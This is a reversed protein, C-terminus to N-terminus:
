SLPFLVSYNNKDICKCNECHYYKLAWDINKLCQCSIHYEVTWLIFLPWIMLMLWLIGASHGKWDYASMRFCQLLRTCYFHCDATCILIWWCHLNGDCDASCIEILWCLLSCDCHATRIQPVTWRAVLVLWWCYRQWLATNQVLFSVKTYTGICERKQKRINEM